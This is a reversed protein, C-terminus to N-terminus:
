AHFTVGKPFEIRIAGTFKTLYFDGKTSSIRNKQGIKYDDFNFWYVSPKDQQKSKNANTLEPM